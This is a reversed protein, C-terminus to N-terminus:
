INKKTSGLVRALASYTGIATISWALVYSICLSLDGFHSSLLTIFLAYLVVWTLGIIAVLTSENLSYLVRFAVATALMPGAGILLIKVITSVVETDSSRFEGHQFLLSILPQGIWPTFTSAIFCLLALKIGVYFTYKWIEQKQSKDLMAATISATLMFPGASVIGSFAIVLRQALSQHSMVGVGLDSAFWADVAPYATFCLTGAAALPIKGALRCIDMYNLRAFSWHSKYLWALCITQLCIGLMQAGVIGVISPTELKLLYTLIFAPPLISFIISGIVRGHANGVSAWSTALVSILAGAWGLFVLLKDYKLTQVHQNTMLCMVFIVASALTFIIGMFATAIVGNGAITIQQEATKGHSRVRAPLLYTVGSAISGIFASAFGVVTFYADLELSPGFKQAILMQAGVTVVLSFLQLVSLRFNQPIM